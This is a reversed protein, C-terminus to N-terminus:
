PRVLVYHGPADPPTIGAGAPRLYGLVRYGLGLYHLFARRTASRWRVAGDPDAERVAHIDAPIAVRVAAGGPLPADDRGEPDAVPAEAHRGLSAELQGRAPDAPDFPDPAEPGLDWRVIFRDTGLGRHLTSGTEGYMDEVYTDVNALFHNLNLYANKSVLPDYTWYCRAVRLRVLHERQHRKLATGLGSGRLRERVALMHSWHVRQSGEVGTLGFVFGSLEGEHEFAGSVVGGVRGAIKLISAPVLESFGEGWVESQLAECARYEDWAELPRIEM